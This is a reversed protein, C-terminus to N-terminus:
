DGEQLKRSRLCHAKDFGEKNRIRCQKMREIVIQVDVCIRINGNKKIIGVTQSVWITREIPYHNGTSLTKDVEVKLEQAYHPQMLSPCQRRPRTDTRMPITHSVVEAIIRKM